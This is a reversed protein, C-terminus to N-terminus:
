SKALFHVSWSSLSPSNSTGSEYVGILELNNKRLADKIENQFWFRMCHTEQFHEIVNNEKSQVFIDYNVQVMNKDDLISPEAVRLLKIEENESRKVRVTPVNRLVGPGYWCDFLLFGGPKLHIKATALSSILDEETLQYSMVHFLSTVIDYQKKLRASRIDGEFFEIKDIRDKPLGQIREQAIKLMHISSDVGDVCYGQEMLFLAHNGSGCGLDLISQPNAAYPRILKHLYEVEYNYNKDHYLLNYYQSYKEQFIM